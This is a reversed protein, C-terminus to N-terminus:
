HKILTKIDSLYVALSLTWNKLGFYGWILINTCSHTSRILSKSATWFVLPRTDYAKFVRPANQENKLCYMLGGGFYKVLVQYARKSLSLDNQLTRRSLEDLTHGISRWRLLSPDGSRGLRQLVWCINHNLWCSALNHLWSLWANNGCPPLHLEYLSWNILYDYSIGTCNVM